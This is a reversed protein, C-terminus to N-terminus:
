TGRERARYGSVEDTSGIRQGERVPQDIQGLKSQKIQTVPKSTAM